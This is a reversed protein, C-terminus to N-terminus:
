PQDPLSFVFLAPLIMAAFVVLSFAIGLIFLVLRLRPAPPRSLAGCYYLEALPGLLYALNAGVAVFIAGAAMGIYTEGDIGVIILILLGPVLLIGNYWLRLREWSTVIVRTDALAHQQAVTKPPAFPNADDNTM